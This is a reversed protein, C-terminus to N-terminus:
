RSAGRRYSRPGHACCVPCSWGASGCAPATGTGRVEPRRRPTACRGTARPRIGAPVPRHGPRAVRRGGHGAEARPRRTGGPGPRACGRRPLRCRSADTVATLPSSCVGCPSVLCAVTVVGSFAVSGASQTSASAVGPGSCATAIRCSWWSITRAAPWWTHRMRATRGSGDGAVTSTMTLWAASSAIVERSPLSCVKSPRLRNLVQANLNAMRWAAASTRRRCHCCRSTSSRSRSRGAAAWSLGSCWASPLSRAPATASAIRVTRVGYWRRIATASSTSPTGM